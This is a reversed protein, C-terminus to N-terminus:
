FPLDWDDQEPRSRERSSADIRPQLSELSHRESPLREIRSEALPELRALVCAAAFSDALGAVVPHGHRVGLVLYTETDNM